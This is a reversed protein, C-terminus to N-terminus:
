DGVRAALEAAALPMYSDAPDDGLENVEWPPTLHTAGYGPWDGAKNFWCWNHIDDQADIWTLLNEVFLPNDGEVNTGPNAQLRPNGDWGCGVEPLSIQLQRGAATYQAEKANVFNRLQTLKPAFHDAWVQAATRGERYGQDGSASSSWPTWDYLTIGVIDPWNSRAQTDTTSGPWCQNFSNVAFMDGDFQIKWSSLGYDRFIQTVRSLASRFNTVRSAIFSGGNPFKPSWAHTKTNFEWGLRFTMNSMLAGNADRVGTSGAYWSAIGQFYSDLAGAAVQALTAYPSEYSSNNWVRLALPVTVICHYGQAHAWRMNWGAQSNSAFRRTSERLETRVADRNTTSGGDAIDAAGTGGPKTTLPAFQQLFKPQRGGLMASFRTLEPFPDAQFIASTYDTNPNPDSPDIFPYNSTDSPGGNIRGFFDPYVGFTEYAVGHVLPTVTVTDTFTDVADDDDTVTLTITYNGAAAYTHNATGGPSGISGTAGDGWNVGRSVVSGDTDTSTDTITFETSTTGTAASKTFSAVPDVNPSPTVAVIRPEVAFLDLFGSYRGMAEEPTPPDPALVYNAWVPLKGAHIAMPSEYHTRILQPHQLGIADASHWPWQIRIRRNVLETSDRLGDTDLATPVGSIPGLGNTAHRLWGLWEDLQAYDYQDTTFTTSNELLTWTMNRNLWDSYKTREGPSYCFEMVSACIDVYHSAQGVDDPFLNRIPGRKWPDTNGGIVDIYDSGESVRYPSQTKWYFILNTFGREDVLYDHAARYLVRYEAPTNRHINRGPYGVVHDGVSWWYNSKNQEFFLQMVIPIDDGLTPHTDVLRDALDELIAMLKWYDAHAPNTFVELDPMQADTLAERKTIAYTDDPLVPALETGTVLTPPPAHWTACPIMSPIGLDPVGNWTFALMEALTTPQTGSYNRYGHIQNDSGGRLDFGRGAPYFGTIAHTWRHWERPNFSVGGVTPPSSTPAEQQFILAGPNAVEDYLFRRVKAANPSYARTM